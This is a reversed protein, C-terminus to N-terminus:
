SLGPKNGYKGDKRIFCRLKSRVESIYVNAGPSYWRGHDAVLDRVKQADSRTRTGYRDIGFWMDDWTLYDRIAIDPRSLFELVAEERVEYRYRKEQEQGIAKILEPQDGPTHCPENANIRKFAEALIQPMFHGAEFLYYLSVECNLPFFTREGGHKALYDSFQQSKANVMLAQPIGAKTLATELYKYDRNSLGEFAFIYSNAPEPKVANLLLLRSAELNYPTHEAQLHYILFNDVRPLRDWKTITAAASNM